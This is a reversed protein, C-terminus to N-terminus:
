VSSDATLVLVCGAAAAAATAACSGGLGVVPYTRCCMFLLKKRFGVFWLGLESGRVGSCLCLGRAQMATAHM